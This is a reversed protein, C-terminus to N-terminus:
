LKMFNLIETPDFKGIYHEIIVSNCTKDLFVEWMGLVVIESYKRRNYNLNNVRTAKKM